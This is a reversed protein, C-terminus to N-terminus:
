ISQSVYDKIESLTKFYSLGSNIYDDFNISSSVKLIPKIVPFKNVLLKTEEVKDNILWIKDAREFNLIEELIKEKSEDAMFVHTFYDRIKAGGLKLEQFYPDGLSLLIMSQGYKKLSELFDVADVFLFKQLNDSVQALKEFVKDEDFEALALFQAHRRDNYTFKGNSDSYAQKYTQWFLEEGVGISKLAELRALKFAQTDFLTDDFDIIFM